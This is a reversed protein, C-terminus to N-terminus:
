RSAASRRRYDDDLDEGLPRFSLNPIAKGLLPLKVSIM